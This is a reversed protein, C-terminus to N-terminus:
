TSQVQTSLEEFNVSVVFTKSENPALTVPTIVNRTFIISSYNSGAFLVIESITINSETGNKVSQTAEIQYDNAYVGRQRINNTASLSTLKTIPTELKYDDVTPATSGSGFAIGVYELGPELNGTRYFNCNAVGSFAYTSFPPMVIKGATTKYRHYATGRLSAWNAWNRLIM